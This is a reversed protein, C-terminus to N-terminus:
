NDVIWEFFYYLCSCYGDMEGKWYCQNIIYNIFILYFYDEM